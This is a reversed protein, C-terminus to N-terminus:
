NDMRPPPPRDFSDPKHSRIERYKKQQEPTLIKEIELESQNKEPGMGDFNEPGKGKDPGFKPPEPKKLLIEEIKKKQDGSLDLMRDLRSIEMEAFKQRTRMMHQELKEKQEDTLIEDLAIKSSDMVAFFEKQRQQQISAIRESQRKLIQEIAKKQSETPEIIKEMSERFRTDPGMRAIRYDKMHRLAGSSLVGLIFGIILVLVLLYM